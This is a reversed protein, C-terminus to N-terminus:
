SADGQKRQDQQQNQQQDQKHNQRVRRLALADQAVAVDSFNHRIGNVEQYSEHGKGALLVVDGPAAHTVAYKIAEERNEIVNLSSRSHDELGDLIDNIIASPDETRPNDSTVVLSQSLKEAVSGMLSRKGKDRDGGCGFVCWLDKDATEVQLVQLIKELADPTHAYDVIVSIDDAVTEVAEMRGSVSSLEPIIALVDNFKAGRSLQVLMAAALNSLNFEGILRTTTAGSGWKSEITIKTVGSDHAIRSVVLDAAGMKAKDTSYSLATVDSPLKELLAQAVPDDANVIATQVDPLQFLRQKAEFYAKETGHYDLHDRSLNTFVATDVMVGDLRHQDLSHSSAEMAVFKAGHAYLNSLIEQLRVPGPTTLGTNSLGSVESSVFGFGLTGVVASREGVANAMQALLHTCTTKGNTGTVACVFIDQSPDHYFSGAIESVLQKLNEVVFVPVNKVTSFATYLGADDKNNKEAFIVAAGADIASDIYHRGDAEGGACAIFVDGPAVRRSDDTIGNLLVGDYEAVPQGQLAQLLNGRGTANKDLLIKLTIPSPVVNM